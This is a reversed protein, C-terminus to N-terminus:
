CDTPSCWCFGDKCSAASFGCDAATKCVIKTCADGTEYNGSGSADFCGPCMQMPSSEFGAVTFGPEDPATCTPMYGGNCSVDGDSVVCDRGATDRFRNNSSAGDESSCGLCLAVVVWWVGVAGNRLIM